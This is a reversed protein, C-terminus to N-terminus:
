GGDSWFTAIQFLPKELRAPPHLGGEKGAMARSRGLFTIPNILKNSLFKSKYLKLIHYATKYTLPFKDCGTTTLFSDVVSTQPTEGALRQQVLRLIPGDAGGPEPCPLMHRRAMGQRRNEQFGCQCLRYFLTTKMVYGPRNSGRNGHLPGQRPPPVRHRPM